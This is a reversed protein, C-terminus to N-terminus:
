TSGVAVLVTGGAVGFLVQVMRKGGARMLAAICFLGLALPVNGYHFMIATVAIAFLVIRSALDIRELGLAISVAFLIVVAGFIDPMLYGAMTAAPTLMLVGVLGLL